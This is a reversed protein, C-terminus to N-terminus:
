LKPSPLEQKNTVRIMLEGSKGMEEFAVELDSYKTVVVQLVTNDTDCGPLFSEKGPRWGQRDM